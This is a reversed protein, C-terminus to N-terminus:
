RCVAKHERFDRSDIIFGRRKFEYRCRNCFYRAMATGLVKVEVAFTVIDDGRRLEHPGSHGREAICGEIDTAIYVAVGCLDDEADLEHTSEILGAATLAAVDRKITKVNVGLRRATTNLDFSGHDIARKVKWQRVLQTNRKQPM